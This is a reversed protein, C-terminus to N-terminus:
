SSRCAPRRFGSAPGWRDLLVLSAGNAVAIPMTAISVYHEVVHSVIGDSWALSIDANPLPARPASVTKAPVVRVSRRCSALRKVPARTNLRAMSPFVDDFDAASIM